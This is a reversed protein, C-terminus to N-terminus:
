GRALWIKKGCFSIGYQWVQTVGEAAFEALYQKGAIQSLAAQAARELGDETESVKFEMVAGPAGEVKPFIGLDFRGYGSERNSVVRYRPLLWAMLGLMFGHYFSEKNGTDHFSAIQVLYKELGRAFEEARGALLHKLIIHLDSLEMKRRYREMIELQYVTRVELNPIAVECYPIGGDTEVRMSKLYGTTLLMTYLADKSEYLDSYIVGERIGVGITEGHLLLLLKREDEEDAHRMLNTVIDNSSTNLWYVNAFCDNHFYNVVSWPNYIEKGSFCYGDYWEKIEGLKDEHGVEKAFVEVEEQTFGFIDAYNGQVVTSVELNNLASFISEKAVRLVGTLVAFHLATNDKVARILFARMFSIAEDYYSEKASWGAQIPSDYEDLLLIVQRGHYRQLYQLLKGLSSQLADESAREYLIDQFADYDDGQLFNEETLYRYQGYLEHMNIGIQAVMSKYKLPKIDKLSLMVVPWKGQERLYKEGAQGIYTGEFLKRNEEANKMSFFYSLMSMAMTKGFRRPRTILTVESHDDLFEKIFRTKDVFYCEERIRKFDSAGVPLRKKWEMTEMIRVEQM